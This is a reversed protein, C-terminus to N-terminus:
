NRAEIMAEAQKRTAANLPYIRIERFPSTDMRRERPIPVIEYKGSAAKQLPLIYKGPGHNGARRDCGTLERLELTQGALKADSSHASWLVEDIKVSPQLGDDDGSVDAVAVVTAILFQPRSLIITGSSLRLYLLFGLWGLFLLASVVLRAKPFTM